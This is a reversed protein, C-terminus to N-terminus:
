VVSPRFRSMSFLRAAMVPVSSAIPSRTLGPRTISRRRLRITSHTRSVFSLNMPVASSRRATHAVPGLLETVGRMGGGVAHTGTRPAGREDRAADGEADPHEHSRHQGADLVSRRRPCCAEGPWRVLALQPHRVHGFRRSGM